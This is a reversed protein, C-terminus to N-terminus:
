HPLDDQEGDHNDIEPLLEPQYDEYLELQEETSLEDNAPTESTKSEDEDVIVEEEPLYDNEPLLEAEFNELYDM